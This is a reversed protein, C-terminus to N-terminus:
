IPSLNDRCEQTVQPLWQRTTSDKARGTQPKEKVATVHTTRAPHDQRGPGTAARLSYCLLLLEMGWAAQKSAKHKQM